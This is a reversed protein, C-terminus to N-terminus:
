TQSLQEIQDARRALIENIARSRSRPANSRQVPAVAAPEIRTQRVAPAAIPPAVQVQEGSVKRRGAIEAPLKRSPAHKAITGYATMVANKWRKRMDHGTQDGDMFSGKREFYEAACLYEGTRALLVHAPNEFNQKDYYVVVDEGEHRAFV